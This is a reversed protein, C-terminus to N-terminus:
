KAFSTVQIVDGTRIGSAFILDGAKPDTGLRVDNAANNDGSRLLMGNLYVFVNRKSPSKEDFFCLGAKTFDFFNNGPLNTNAAVPADTCERVAYDVQVGSGGGSVQAAGDVFAPGDVMFGVSPIKSLLQRQAYAYRISKGGISASDAPQVTFTLPDVVVFSIQAQSTLDDFASGDIAIDRVQLIGRIPQKKIADLISEGTSADAIDLLIKVGDEVPAVTKNSTFEGPGVKCAVAGETTSTLSMRTTPAQNSAALLVAYNQGAPVAVPVQMQTRRPRILVPDAGKTQSLEKLSKIGDAIFDKSWTGEDAGSIIRKLQSLIGNQLEEQTIAQAVANIGKGDLQDNIEDAVRVASYRVLQQTM